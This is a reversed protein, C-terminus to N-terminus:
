KVPAMTFRGPIARVFPDKIQPTPTTRWDVVPNGPQNETKSYEFWLAM